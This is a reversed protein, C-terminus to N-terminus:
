TSGGAQASAAERVRELIVDAIHPETGIAPAYWVLKEHKETPNRWAPQRAALRQKVIREPEGLLVPIDEQTHLGDSIFFPVIVINRTEALQYCNAIRPQEEMFIAHVAAYIHKAQILEVQHEIAKRSNGSRETGHGAIFLTLDKPKPARPFPFTEVIARARALLVDTMSDHTGIPQCYYTIRSVHHTIRSAPDDSLLFGLERPIVEESFYGESIFLPVIFVRQRSIAALVQRVQPEQKWFAERVEAFIRRRRLEAAHQFVPAGSEANQTSGHGLLVLAAGSYKQVDM